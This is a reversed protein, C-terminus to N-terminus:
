RPAEVDPALRFQLEVTLGGGPTDRLELAVGASEALRSAISLGLGLGDSSDSRGLRRFPELAGERLRPDIGPGHDIVALVLSDRRHRASLRVSNPAASYKVANSILNAVVREVLGADTVVDPLEAFSDVLVRGAFGGISVATPVIEELSTVELNVDIAGVELRGFDLLNTVLHNLRDTNEEIARLFEARMDDSFDVDSQLLSSASAKISALPTRLDHSVAQLLAGRLAATRDLVEARAANDALRINRLTSRIQDCFIRLVKQDGERLKRGRALLFHGDGLDEQYTAGSRELLAPEGASARLTSSPVGPSMISVADLGVTVKLHGAIAELAGPSSLGTTTALYALVDAERRANRAQVARKDSRSVISIVIPASGAFCLLALLDERRSVEFSYLPRIVLFITLCPTLVATVVAPRMGGLGGAVIVALLGLMLVSSPHLTSRQWASLVMLATLGTGSLVLASWERPGDISKRIRALLRVSAPLPPDSSVVHVDVSGALRIVDRVVSGIALEQLRNRNSSGLVIQTAQRSRAFTVLAEAVDTGTMEHYSGGMELLLLRQQRVVDESSQTWNVEPGGSRREPRIYVGILEARSRLALRAARRIVSESGAGGIAVVVREQVEAQRESASRAVDAAWFLAVTRLAAITQPRLLEDIASGAEAADIVNGHAIRRGLAEPTIDILEIQDARRLFEDPISASPPGGLIETVVDRLSEIHQVNLTSVVDIGAGLIEDVVSWRRVGSDSAAVDDILVVEPRRRLVAAVDLQGDVDIRELAHALKRTQPRINKSLAGVIVDAGRGRRRHGESLIAFTKGVGVAAGLYIRLRGREAGTSGSMSGSM